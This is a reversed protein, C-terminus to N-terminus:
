RCVLVPAAATRLIEDVTSGLVVELLPNFGYGGMIILDCSSRTAVDLLVAAVQGTECVFEAEVGYDALQTKASAQTEDDAGNGELVTVVTLPLQWRGTLYAGVYLAEDAKPSGDYALIAREIPRHHEPVTLVPRPCRRLLMAISSGLRALPQNSPPRDVRITVLDVWRARDSITAMVSSMDTAAVVV